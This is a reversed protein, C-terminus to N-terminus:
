GDNPNKNFSSEISSEGSSGSSSNILSGATQRSGGEKQGREENELSLPNNNFEEATILGLRFLIYQTVGEETAEDISGHSSTLEEQLLYKTDRNSFEIEIPAGRSGILSPVRQYLNVVTNVNEPVTRDITESGPGLAPDILILDDIQFNFDSDEQLARAIQLARTGGASYGYIILKDGEQYNEKIFGIASALTADRGGTGIAVARVDIDQKNALESTREVIRGAVGATSNDTLVEGDEFIGGQLTVLTGELGDLDINAIPSNSAYQYSSLM